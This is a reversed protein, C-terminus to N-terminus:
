TVHVSIESVQAENTPGLATFWLLVARGEAKVDFSADGSVNTKEAVARGWGALATAPEKAVYLQASWGNTPSDVEVKTIRVERDVLVYIGVGDKLGGFPAGKKYQETSWATKPNGDIAKAADNEREKHDGEPDFGKASALRPEGAPTQRSGVPSNSSPLKRGDSRSLAVVGTVLAAAVLAGVLLAPARSRTPRGVTRTSRRSAARKPPPGSRTLGVTPDAHAQSQAPTMVTTLPLHLTHGDHKPIGRTPLKALAAAVETATDPRGDPDKSLLSGLLKALDSSVPQEIPPPPDQVHALATALDTDRMFPPRGALMEYLVVGLSYLDARADVPEAKVQEPALYRATGVIVGERTLSQDAASGDTAEQARAVGFDAVKVIPDGTTPDPLLLLNGPKIDRHIVGARHAADLAEATQTAITVAEAEPIPGSDIRHGLTIGAILEMVIFATEGDTGADFTAVIGPHTLRAAAVAERRFRERFGPDAALHPHAVKVAVSRTLVLDHGAWVTAMGGKALIRDLRYRGTLVAGPVPPGGHRPVDVAALHQTPPGSDVTL